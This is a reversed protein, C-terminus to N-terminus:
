GKVFAQPYQTNTITGGVKGATPAATVTSEKAPASYAIAYEPLYVMSASNELAIPLRYHADTAQGNMQEVLLQIQTVYDAQSQYPFQYPKGSADVAPPFTPHLGFKGGPYNDPSDATEYNTWATHQGTTNFTAYSPSSQITGDANLTGYTVSDIPSRQGGGVLYYNAYQSTSNFAAYRADQPDTAPTGDPNWMWQQSPLLDIPLFQPAPLQSLAPTPTVKSVVQYYTSSASAAATPIPFRLALGQASVTIITDAPCMRDLMDRALRQEPPTPTMKHPRVVLENLANVGRNGVLTPTTEVGDPLTIVLGGNLMREYNWVEFVDCDVALAAQVCMRVGAMTGGLGCAIFFDRIRARYWADKVMVEDWEQVTLTDHLPDYPYSEAPTRSLISISGFIYDLENFYITQLAAGLNNLFAQNILSGAGTSGCMADLYKYLLTDPTGKYVDEDFSRLRLETSKPPMLPWPANLPM